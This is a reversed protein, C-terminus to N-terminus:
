KPKNNLSKVADIYADMYAKLIDTGSIFEGVGQHDKSNNSIIVITNGTWQEPDPKIIKYGMVKYGFIEELTAFLATRPDKGHGTASKTAGDVLFELDVFNGPQGKTVFYGKSDSEVWTHTQSSYLSLKKLEVNLM